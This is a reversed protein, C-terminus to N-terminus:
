LESFLTMQERKSRERPCLKTLVQNVDKILSDTETVIDVQERHNEAFQLQQDLTSLSGKLIRDKSM